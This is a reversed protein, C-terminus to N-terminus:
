HSETSNTQANLRGANISKVQFPCPQAMSHANPLAMHLSAILKNLTACITRFSM